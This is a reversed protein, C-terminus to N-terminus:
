LNEQLPSNQPWISPFGKLFRDLYGLPRWFRGVMEQVKWGDMLMRLGCAVDGFSILECVQNKMFFM